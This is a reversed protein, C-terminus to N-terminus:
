HLTNVPMAAFYKKSSNTGREYGAPARCSKPSCSPPKLICMKINRCIMFCLKYFHCLSPPGWGQFKKKGYLLFSASSSEKGYINKNIQRNREQIGNLMGLFSGLQTFFYIPIYICFYLFFSERWLLWLNLWTLHIRFLLLVMCERNLTYVMNIYLWVSYVITVLERM